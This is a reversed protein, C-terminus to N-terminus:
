LSHSCFFSKMRFDETNCNTQYGTFNANANNELEELTELTEKVQTSLMVPETEATGSVFNSTNHSLYTDVYIDPPTNSVKSSKSVEQM